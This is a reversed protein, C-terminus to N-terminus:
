KEDCGFLYQSIKLYNCQHRVIFCSRIIIHSNLFIFIFFPFNIAWSNFEMHQYIRRILRRMLRTIRSKRIDIKRRQETHWRKVKTVRIAAVLEIIRFKISNKNNNTQTATSWCWWAHPVYFVIFSDLLTDRYISYIYKKLFYNENTFNSKSLRKFHRKKCAWM